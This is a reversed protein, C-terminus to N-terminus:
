VFYENTNNSYIKTKLKAKQWKKNEKSERKIIKIQMNYKNNVQCCWELCVSLSYLPSSTFFNKNKEEKEETLECLWPVLACCKIPEGERSHLSNRFTALPLSFFCLSHLLLLCFFFVAFSSLLLSYKKRWEKRHRKKENILYTFKQDQPDNPM